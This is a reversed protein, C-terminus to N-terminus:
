SIYVVLEEYVKRHEKGFANEEVESSIVEVKVKTTILDKNKKMTEVKFTYM